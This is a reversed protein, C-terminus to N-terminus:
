IYQFFNYESLMGSQRSMGSETINPMAKCCNKITGMESLAAMIRDAFRCLGVRHSIIVPTKGATLDIFKKLIDYEVLPDLASAPENLIIIDADKNLGRAVAVKQWEM